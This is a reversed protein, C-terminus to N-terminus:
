CAVSMTRLDEAGEGRIDMRMQLRRVSPRTGFHNVLGLDIPDPAFPNEPAIGESIDIRNKLEAMVAVLTDDTFTDASPESRLLDFATDALDTTDMDRVIQLLEDDATSAPLDLEGARLRRGVLHAIVQRDPENRLERAKAMMERVTRVSSVTVDGDM